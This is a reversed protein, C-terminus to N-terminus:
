KQRKLVNWKPIDAHYMKLVLMDGEEMSLEEGKSLYKFPSNEYVGSVASKLRSKGEEPCIMGKTFYFAQSLGPLFHSGVTLGAKTGLDLGTEKWDKKSYGVVKAELTDDEIAKIVGDKEESTPQVIIYADRDGRSADKIKIINGIIIADKEFKLGSEMEANDLVKARFSTEETATDINILSEVVVDVAECSQMVLLMLFTLLMRRM